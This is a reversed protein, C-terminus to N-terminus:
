LTIAEDDGKKSLTKILLDLNDHTKVGEAEILDLIERKVLHGRNESDLAKFARGTWSEVTTQKVVDVM